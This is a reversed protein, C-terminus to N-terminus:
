EIFVTGGNKIAPIRKKTAPINNNIQHMVLPSFIGFMTEVNFLESAPTSINNKPVVANIHDSCYKGEPKAATMTALTGKQNTNSSLLCQIIFKLSLNIM